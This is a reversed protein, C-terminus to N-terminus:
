PPIKSATTVARTAQLSQKPLIGSSMTRPNIHASLTSKRKKNRTDTTGATRKRKKTTPTTRQRTTPRNSTATTDPLKRKNGTTAEKGESPQEPQVDPQEIHTTATGSPGPLPQHSGAYTILPSLTNPITQTINTPYLVANQPTHKVRQPIANGRRTGSDNTRGLVTRQMRHRKTTQPPFHTNPAFLKRAVCPQMTYM